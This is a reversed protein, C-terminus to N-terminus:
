FAHFLSGIRRPHEPLNSYRGQDEMSRIVLNNGQGSDSVMWEPIGFELSSIMGSAPCMTFRSCGPIKLLKVALKRAERQDKGGTLM